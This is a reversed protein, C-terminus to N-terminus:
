LPIVDLTFFFFGIGATGLDKGFDALLDSDSDTVAPRIRGAVV